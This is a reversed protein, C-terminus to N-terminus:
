VVSKSGRLTLVGGTFFGQKLIHCVPRQYICIDLCLETFIDVIYMNIHYAYEYVNM